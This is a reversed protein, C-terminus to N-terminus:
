RAGEIKLRAALMEGGPASQDGLFDVFAVFVGIMDDRIEVYNWPKPTRDPKMWAVREWSLHSLHQDIDPLRAILRQTAETEPAVWGTAFDDPTIDNSHRRDRGILFEILNRAHLLYAELFANDHHVRPANRLFESFEYDLHGAAIEVDNEDRQPVPM